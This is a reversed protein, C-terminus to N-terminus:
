SSKVDDRIKKDTFPTQESTMMVYNERYVVLVLLGDFLSFWLLVHFPLYHKGNKNQLYIFLYPHLYVLVKFAVKQKQLTQM